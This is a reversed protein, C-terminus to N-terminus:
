FDPVLDGIKWSKEVSGFLRQCNACVTKLNNYKTNLLDGDIYIEFINPKMGRVIKFDKNGISFECEVLCDKQNISNVLQPKNINRFAKGFLVFCLADLMTSKGAGNSGVVLTNTNRCLNIETFYNGTSLFNKFKLTKFFIM